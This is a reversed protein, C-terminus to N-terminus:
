TVLPPFKERNKQSKRVLKIRREYNCSTSVAWPLVDSRDYSTCAGPCLTQWRYIGAGDGKISRLSCPVASVCVGSVRGRDISM